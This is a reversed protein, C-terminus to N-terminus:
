YNNEMRIYVARQNKRKEDKLNYNGILYGPFITLVM